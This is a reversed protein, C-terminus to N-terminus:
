GRIGEARCFENFNLHKVGVLDCFNPIRLKKSAGANTNRREMSLVPLGLTCGLAVISLDNLGITGKMNGNYESIYQRHSVQWKKNLDIYDKWPWSGKGVELCSSGNCAKLSAGVAGPILALENGIEVNWCFVGSQITSIVRPWLTTHIDEPLDVVPNSLGSTDLCYKPTM